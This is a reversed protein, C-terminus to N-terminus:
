PTRFAEFPLQLAVIFVVWVAASVGLALLAKGALSLRSDALSSALVSLFAAPVIGIQPITVAFVLVGASVAAFSRIDPRGREDRRVFSQVVVLAALASVIGGLLLPFYGPGMRRASGLDMDLAGDVGFLSGALTLGTFTAVAARAAREAADRLWRKIDETITM